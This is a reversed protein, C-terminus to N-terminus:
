NADKKGNMAKFKDRNLFNKHSKPSETKAKITGLSSLRQAFINDLAFSMRM